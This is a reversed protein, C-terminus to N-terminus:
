KPGGHIEAYLIEAAIKTIRDRWAQPLPGNPLISYKGILYRAYRPLRALRVQRGTAIFDLAARTVGTRRLSLAGGDVARPRDSGYATRGGDFADRALRSAEPAYRQAIRAAATIPMRRLSNQLARISRLGAADLTM